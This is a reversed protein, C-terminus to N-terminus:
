FSEFGVGCSFVTSSGGGNRRLQKSRGIYTSRGVKLSVSWPQCTAALSLPVHARPDRIHLASCAINV